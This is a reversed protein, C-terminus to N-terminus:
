GPPWHMPRCKVYIESGDNSHELIKSRNGFVDGTQIPNWGIPLWIKLPEKGNPKYPVPGSYFSMQIQRGRDYSNILNCEKKSDSLYTISGGLSLDVGIRVSGNDLYSM